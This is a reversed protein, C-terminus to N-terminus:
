SVCGCCSRRGMSSLCRDFRASYGSGFVLAAEQGKLLAVEKELEHFIELDGSMLRAAGTGTGYLKLFRLSEELLYPHASLGLYDNSSFDILTDTSPTHALCIRGDQLRRIPTLERIKGAKARENLWNQIWDM